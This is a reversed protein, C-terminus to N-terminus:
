RICGGGPIDRYTGLGGRYVLPYLEGGTNEQLHGVEKGRVLSREDAVSNAVDRALLYICISISIYISLYIYISPYTYIYIHIYIYVYMYIYM